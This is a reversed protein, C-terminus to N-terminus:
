PSRRPGPEVITRAAAHKEWRKKVEPRLYHKAGKSGDFTPLSGTSVHQPGMRLPMKVREQKPAKIHACSRGENPNPRPTLKGGCYGHDGFIIFDSGGVAVMNNHILRLGFNGRQDSKSMAGSSGAVVQGGAGM